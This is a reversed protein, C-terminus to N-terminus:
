VKLKELCFGSDSGRSGDAFGDANERCLNMSVSEDVRPKGSM